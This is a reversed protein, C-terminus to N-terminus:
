LDRCFPSCPWESRGNQIPFTIVKGLLINQIDVPLKTRKLHIFIKWIETIIEMQIIILVNFGCLCFIRLFVWWKLSFLIPGPFLLNFVVAHLACPDLYRVQSCGRSGDWGRWPGARVGVEDRQSPCPSSSTALPRETAAPPPPQPCYKPRHRHCLLHRSFLTSGSADVEILWVSWCKKKWRRWFQCGDVCHRLLRMCSCPYGHPEPAVRYFGFEADWDQSCLSACRPGQALDLGSGVKTLLTSQFEAVSM